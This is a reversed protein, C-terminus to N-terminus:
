CSLRLLQHQLKMLKQYWCQHGFWLRQYHQFLTDNSPVAFIVTALAVPPNAIVPVVVPVDDEAEASATPNFPAVLGASCTSAAVAEDAVPILILDAAAVPPAAIV